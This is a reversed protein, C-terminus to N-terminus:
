IYMTKKVSGELVTKLAINIIRFEIEDNYVSIFMEFENLRNSLEIWDIWEYCM